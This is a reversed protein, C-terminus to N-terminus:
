KLNYMQGLAKSPAESSNEEIVLISSSKANKSAEEEQKKKKPKPPKSPSMAKKKINSQGLPLLQLPLKQVLPTPSLSESDGEKSSLTQNLVLEIDPTM